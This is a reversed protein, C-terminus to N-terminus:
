KLIDISLLNIRRRQVDKTINNVVDFKEYLKNVDVSDDLMFRQYGPSNRMMVYILEDRKRVAAELERIRNEMCDTTVTM